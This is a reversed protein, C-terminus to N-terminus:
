EASHALFSHLLELSDRIQQTEKQLQKYRTTQLLREAHLEQRLQALQSSIEVVTAQDARPIAHTTGQRQTQKPLVLNNLKKSLLGSRLPVKFHQFVRTLLFGYPISHNAQKRAIVRNMHHIILLPLNIPLTKAMHCM